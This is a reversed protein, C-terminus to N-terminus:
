PLAFRECLAEFQGVKEGGPGSGGFTLFVKFAAYGERSYFQVSLTEVGDLHGPKRVAFVAGIAAPRVHMDITKTQVNFYAREGAGFTSFNGFRGFAELTAAGNSVIVHVDGVAELARVIEEWRGADLETARGDPMARIVEVEAVGLERAVQVTMARPNAALAARIRGVDAKDEREEM